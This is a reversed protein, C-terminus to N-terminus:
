LNVEETYRTKYRNIDLNKSLKDSASVSLYGLILEDRRGPRDRSLKSKEFM